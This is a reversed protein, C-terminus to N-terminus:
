AVRDMASDNGGEAAELFLEFARSLNGHIYESEAQEFIKDNNM